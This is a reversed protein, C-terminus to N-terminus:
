NNEYDRIKKNINKITHNLTKDVETKTPPFVLNLEYLEELEVVVRDLGISQLYSKLELYNDRKLKYNFAEKLLDSNTKICYGKGANDFYTYNVESHNLKLVENRLRAKKLDTDLCISKRVKSNVLKTDGKVTSEIVSKVLGIRDGANLCKYYTLLYYNANTYFLLHTPNLLCIRNDNCGLSHEKCINHNIRSM